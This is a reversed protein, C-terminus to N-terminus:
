KFQKIATELMPDNGLALQQKEFGVFIDPKIGKLEFVENTNSKFAASSIKVNLFGPITFQGDNYVENLTIPGTAGWTSEGVLICNNLNKFGITALEAMSATFNDILVVIPLDIKNSSLNPNIYANIWPSFDLRGPGEKHRTYGFVKRNNFFKGTFFNLDSLEGGTNGRLDLIIGQMNKQTNYCLKFFTDIVKKVSNNQLSNYSSNMRFSSAYFYIFKNAITGTLCYLPSLTPQSIDDFGEVYLTDLYKKSVVYYPYPNHFSKERMKREYAPYIISDAIEKKLFSIYFHGDIFNSCIERFLSVSKKVDAENNLDLKSFIPKYKKFILDWNTTDTDWYVYNRDLQQWFIDFVEKFSKPNKSDIITDKTCDSCFFLVTFFIFLYRLRYEM